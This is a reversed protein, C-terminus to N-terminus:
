GELKFAASEWRMLEAYNFGQMFCIDKIGVYQGELGMCEGKRDLWKSLVLRRGAVFDIGEQTIRWLGSSSKAPDTNEIPYIFGWHKFMSFNEGRSIPLDSIHSVTQGRHHNESLRILAPIDAKPIWRSYTTVISGCEHCTESSKRTM